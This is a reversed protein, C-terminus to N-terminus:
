NSFKTDLYVKYGSWCAIKCMAMITYDVEILNPIFMGFGNYKRQLVRFEKRQKNVKFIGENTQFVFEKPADALEIAFRFREVDDDTVDFDFDIICCFIKDDVM